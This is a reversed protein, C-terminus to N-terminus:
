DGQQRFKRACEDSCFYYERGGIIKKRAERLPIYTKCQPDQVMEDVAGGAPGTESSGRRPSLASKLLRYAIYALIALLLLRM